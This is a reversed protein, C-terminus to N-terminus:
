IEIVKTEIGPIRLACVFVFPSIQCKYSIVKSWKIFIYVRGVIKFIEELLWGALAMGEAMGRRSGPLCQRFKAIRLLYSDRHKKLSLSVGFRWNIIEQEHM